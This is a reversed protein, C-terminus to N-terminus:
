PISGRVEQVPIPTLATAGVVPFLPSSGTVGEKVEEKSLHRYLGTVVHNKPNKRDNAVTHGPILNFLDVVPPTSVM